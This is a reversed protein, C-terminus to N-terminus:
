AYQDSEKFLNKIKVRYKKGMNNRFEIFYEAHENQQIYDHIIKPNSYTQYTLKDDIKEGGSLNFARGHRETWTKYVNDSEQEREYHETVPKIRILKYRTFFKFQKGDPIKIALVPKDISGSGGQTNRVVIELEFELVNDKLQEISKGKWDRFVWDPITLSLEEVEIKPTNYKFSFWSVLVGIIGGIAGIIGTVTGTIGWFNAQWFTSASPSSINNILQDFNM